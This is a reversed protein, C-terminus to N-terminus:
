AAFIMRFIIVACRNLRSKVRGSVAVPDIKILCCKLTKELRKKKNTTLNNDFSTQGKTLRTSLDLGKEKRQRETCIYKINSKQDNTEREIRTKIIAM